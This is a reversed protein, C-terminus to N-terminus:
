DANEQQDDTLRPLAIDTSSEAFNPDSILRRDKWLNPEETENNLVM